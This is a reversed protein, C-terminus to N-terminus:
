ACSPSRSRPAPSRLSTRPRRTLPTGERELWVWDGFEHTRYGRTALERDLRAVTARSAFAGLLEHHSTGVEHTGSILVDCCRAPRAPGLRLTALGPGARVRGDADLASELARAVTTGVAIVRRGAARAADVAEATSRPIAFPEDLPFQADLADDGTSSLGAAHTLTVLRAGRAAIAAIAAHDLSFGASPPEVAVPPGALPTWVDYLALPARLYSYQVPRGHQALGRWVHRADGEFEIEVLRPHGRTGLVVATLPGLLLRDGARVLPPAARLETPTRWDGSGFLAATWRRVEGLDLTGRAALRLEVSAGSSELAGHLSAPLTAADNAVVLDGAAIQSIVDRAETTTGDAGLVLLRHQASRQRASRAPKM